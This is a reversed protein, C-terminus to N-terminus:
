VQVPALARAQALLELQVQVQERVRPMVLERQVQARRALAQFARAL